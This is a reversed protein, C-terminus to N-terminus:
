RSTLGQRTASSEPIPTMDGTIDWTASAAVAQVAIAATDSVMDIVTVSATAAVTISAAIVVM